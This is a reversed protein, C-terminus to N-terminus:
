KPMKALEREDALLDDLYGDLTKYVEAYHDYKDKCQQILDDFYDEQERRADTEPLLEKLTRLEDTLRNMEADYLKNMTRFQDMTNEVHEIMTKIHITIPTTM